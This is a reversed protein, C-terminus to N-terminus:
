RRLGVGKLLALIKSPLEDMRDNLSALRNSLDQMQGNRANSAEAIGAIERGMDRVIEHLNGISQSRKGDLRQFGEDVKLGMASLQDKLDDMQEVTAFKVSGRVEIPQGGLETKKNHGFLEKFLCVVYYATVVFGSLIIVVWGIAQPSDAAPLDAAAIFPM